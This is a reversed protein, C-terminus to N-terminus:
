FLQKETAHYGRQTSYEMSAARPFSLTTSLKYLAFFALLGTTFFLLAKSIFPFTIFFPASIMFMFFCSDAFTM